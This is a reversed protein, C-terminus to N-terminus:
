KHKAGRISKRPNHKSKMAGSKTHQRMAVMISNRPALTKTKKKM